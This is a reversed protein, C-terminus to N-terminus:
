ANKIVDDLKLSTSLVESVANLTLLERNRKLLWRDWGEKIKDLRHQNLAQDIRLPLTSLYDGRKVVYDYAGNKMAEVAVWESGVGTVIITPLDYHMEKIRRLVKLGDMGDMCYDLLLLSLSEHALKYLAEAGSSALALEYCGGRSLYKITLKAQDWNDE